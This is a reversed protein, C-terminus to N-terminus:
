ELCLSSDGHLLWCYAYNICRTYSRPSYKQFFFNKNPLDILKNPPYHKETDRIYNALAIPLCEITQMFWDVQGKTYLQIILNTEHDFYSKAQKRGILIIDSVFKFYPNPVRKPIVSLHVWLIPATKWFFQPQLSLQKAFLSGCFTVTQSQIAQELM